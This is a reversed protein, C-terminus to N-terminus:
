ICPQHEEEITTHYQSSKIQRGAELPQEMNRPLSISDQLFYFSHAMKQPYNGPASPANFNPGNSSQEKQQPIEDFTSFKKTNSTRKGKIYERKLETQATKCFLRNPGKSSTLLLFEQITSNACTFHRPLPFFWSRFSFASTPNRTRVLKM